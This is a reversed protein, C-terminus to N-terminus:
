ALEEEAMAKTAQREEWWEHREQRREASEATLRMWHEAEDSAERPHSAYWDQMARQDQESALGLVARRRHLRHDEETLLIPPDAIDEGGELSRPPRNNM